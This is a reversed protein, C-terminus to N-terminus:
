KSHFLLPSRQTQDARAQGGVGPDRQALGQQAAQRGRREGQRQGPGQEAPAQEGAGDQGVDGGGLRHGGDGDGGQQDQPDAVARGRHDDQAGEHDEEGDGDGDEQSQAAQIRVDYVGGPEVARM